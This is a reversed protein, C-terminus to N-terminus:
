SRLCAPIASTVVSVCATPRAAPRSQDVARHAPLDPIRQVVCCDGASASFAGTRAACDDAGGARRDAAGACGANTVDFALVDPGSFGDVQFERRGGGDAVFAHRTTRLPWAIVITSRWGTLTPDTSHDRRAASRVALTVPQPRQRLWTAPVPFEQQMAAFGDWTVVGVTQGNLEVRVRHDPNIAPSTVGGQMRVRLAATYGSTVAHAVACTWRSRRTVAPQQTRDLVLASLIPSPTPRCTTASSTTRRWVRRRGPPPTPSRAPPRRM